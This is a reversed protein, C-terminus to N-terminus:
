FLPATSGQSMMRLTEDTSGSFVCLRNADRGDSNVVSVLSTVRRQHRDEEEKEGEGEGGGEKEGVKEGEKEGEKKGLPLGGIRERTQINWGVVGGDSTGGWVENHFVQSLCILFFSGEVKIEEKLQPNGAPNNLDPEWIYINTGDYAWVEVAGGRGEEGLFKKREKEDMTEQGRGWQEGRDLDVIEFCRIHTSLLNPPLPWTFQPIELNMPSLSEMSTRSLSGRPPTISPNLSPTNAPLKTDSSPRSNRSNRSSSSFSPPLLPSSLSFFHNQPSSQSSQSHKVLSQSFAQTLTSRPHGPPSQSPSDSSLSIRSSSGQPFVPSRPDPPTVVIVSNGIFICLQGNYLRKMGCVFSQFRTEVGSVDVRVTRLPDIRQTHHLGHENSESFLQWEVLRLSNTLAWVSHYLPVLSVIEKGKEAEMINGSSERRRWKDAEVSAVRILTGTYSRLLQNIVLLWADIDPSCGPKFKMVVEKRAEGEDVVLLSKGCGEKMVKTERTLVFSGLEAGYERNEYFAIRGGELTAWVERATCRLRTWHLLVPGRIQCVELADELMQPAPRWVSISGDKAGSWIAWKSSQLAIATVSDKHSEEQSCALFGPPASSLRPPVISPSPSSSSSSSRSSLPSSSSSSCSDSTGSSQTELTFPSLTASPPHDQYIAVSGDGFGIWVISGVPTMCMVKKERELSRQQLIVQSGKSHKRLVIKKIEWEKDDGRDRSLPSSHFSPDPLSPLPADPTLEAMRPVLETMIKKLRQHVVHIRPRKEPVHDWCDRMLRLYAEPCEREIEEPVSPRNGKQTYYSLMLEQELDQSFPHLQVLLEWLIIGVGYVDAETSYGQGGIVEPAAWTATLNELFHGEAVRVRDPGLLRVSLGLDGVKALPSTIFEDTTRDIGVPCRVLFINPSKIDRHLLPPNLSHMFAIGSIIDSAIKLRLHWDMNLIAKGHTCCMESVEESLNYVKTYSEKVHAEHISQIGGLVEKEKTVLEQKITEIESESHNPLADLRQRWAEFDGPIQEFVGGAIENLPPIPPPRPNKAPAFQHLAIASHYEGITDALKELKLYVKLDLHNICDYLTGGGVLEMVIATKGEHDAKPDPSPLCVGLLQVINPHTVCSMAYVEVQLNKLLDGATQDDESLDRDLVKMAVQLSSLSVEREGEEGQPVPSLAEFFLPTSTIKTKLPSLHSTGSRKSDTLSNSGFPTRHSASLLPSAVSPKQPTYEGAMVRGYAGRGLEKGVKMSDWSLVLPSDFLFDPVLVDMRISHGRTCQVSVRREVMMDYLDSLLFHCSEPSCDKGGGYGWWWRVVEECTFGLPYVSVNLFDPLIEEQDSVRAIGKEYMAVDFHGLPCGVIVTFMVNYFETLMNQTAKFLMGMWRAGVDRKMATVELELCLNGVARVMGCASGEGRGEKGKGKGGEPFFSIVCGQQWCVEVVGLEMMQVIVMPVVAVPVGVREEMVFLRRLRTNWGSSSIAGLSGDPPTEPLLAPVFFADTTSFRLPFIISLQELLLLMGQQYKKPFLCQDRWLQKLVVDVFVIGRRSTSFSQKTTIFTSLLKSLWQPQLVVLMPLEGKDKVLTIVGLQDLVRLVEERKEELELAEIGANEGESRLFNQVEPFSAVPGVRQCLKEIAGRGVELYAPVQLEVREAVKKLVSRLNQASAAGFRDPTGRIPVWKEYIIDGFTARLSSHVSDGRPYTGRQRQFQPTRDAHTGIVMVVAGTANKSILSRIWFSLEGVSHRVPDTLRFLVAYICYGSLFLQHTIRYVKHGGFDWTVFTTSGVELRGLDIGDTSLTNFSNAGFSSRYRDLDIKWTNKPQTPSLERLCRIMTTKGVGAGGM